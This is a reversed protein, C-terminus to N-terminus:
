YNGSNVTGAGGSSNASSVTSLYKWCNEDVYTTDTVANGNQMLEAHGDAFSLSYRGGNSTSPLSYGAPSNLAAGKAPAIFLPSPSQAMNADIFVFTETPNDLGGESNVSGTGSGLNSNMAISRILARGDATVAEGPTAFVKAEDLYSGLAGYMFLPGRVRSATADRFVSWVDRIGPSSSGLTSYAGQTMPTDTKSGLRDIVAFHTNAAPSRGGTPNTRPAHGFGSGHPCWTDYTFTDFDLTWNGPFNKALDGDNDDAYSQWAMQIQRKNSVGVMAKAKSKAKALAPLLMSALIGIIAIVVLLEILTFGGRKTMESQKM